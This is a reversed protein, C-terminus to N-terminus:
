GGERQLGHAAMKEGTLEGDWLKLSVEHPVRPSRCLEEVADIVVHGYSRNEEPLHFPPGCVENALRGVDERREIRAVRTDPENYIPLLSQGDDVLCEFGLVALVIGTPRDVEAPEAEHNVRVPLLLMRSTDHVSFGDVALEHGQAVDQRAVPFAAHWPFRLCKQLLDPDTAFTNAIVWKWDHHHSRRRQVFDALNEDPDVRLPHSDRRGIPGNGQHPFEVHAGHSLFETLFDPVLHERKGADIWYEHPEIEHRFALVHLAVWWSQLDHSPLPGTSDITITVVPIFELFGPGPVLPGENKSDIVQM